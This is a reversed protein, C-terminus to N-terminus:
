QAPRVGALQQELHDLRARIDPAPGLRSIWNSCAQILQLDDGSLSVQYLTQSDEDPLRGHGRRQVRARTLPAATRSADATEDSAQSHNV